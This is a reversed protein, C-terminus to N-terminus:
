LEQMDAYYIMVWEGDSQRMFRRELGYNAAAYSIREVVLEEGLLQWERKFEGSSFDVPHHMRWTKQEWSVPRKERRISDMEVTTIGQLPWSIHALQYLSDAHFQRYFALFGAPLQEETVQATKEPRDPTNGAPPAPRRCALLFLSFLFSFFVTRFM